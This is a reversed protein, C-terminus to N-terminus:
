WEIQIIGFFSLIFFPLLFAMIFQLFQLFRLFPILGFNVSIFNLDFFETYGSVTPPLLVNKSKFWIHLLQELTWALLFWECFLVTLEGEIDSQYLSDRIEDARLEPDERKTYGIKHIDNWPSEALKM